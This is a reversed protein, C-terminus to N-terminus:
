ESAKRRSGPLPLPSRWAPRAFSELDVTSSAYQDEGPRSESLPPTDKAPAAGAGLLFALRSSIESGELDAHKQGASVPRPQALLVPRMARSTPSVPRVIPAPGRSGREDTISVFTQHSTPSERAQESSAPGPPGTACISSTPSGPPSGDIKSRDMGRRRSGFIPLNSHQDPRAPQDGRALKTKGAREHTIVSSGVGYFGGSIDVVSDGFLDVEMPRDTQPAPPTVILAHSDEGVAKLTARPPLASAVERSEAGPTEQEDPRGMGRAENTDLGKVDFRVAKAAKTDNSARNASSESNSPLQKLIVPASAPVSSGSNGSERPTLAEPESAARATTPTSSRTATEAGSLAGSLTSTFGDTPLTEATRSQATQAADEFLADSFVGGIYRRLVESKGGVAFMKAFASILERQEEAERRLSELQNQLSITLSKYHDLAGQVTESHPAIPKADSKADSKAGSKMGSKAEPLANLETYNGLLEEAELDSMQITIGSSALATVIEKRAAPDLAAGSGSNDTASKAEELREVLSRAFKEILFNPLVTLGAGCRPCTCTVCSVAEGTDDEMRAPEGLITLSVTPDYSVCRHRRGCRCTLYGGQPAGEGTPAPVAGDPESSAPGTGSGTNGSSPPPLDIERFDEIVNVVTSTRVSMCRTAFQLTSFSEDFNAVSPGVTALVLTRSNGSLSDTLLRTLPSDRFPVHKSQTVLATICNGLASLSKNIMKAEQLREGNSMTKSVRESGALDVMTLLGRVIKSDEARKREVTLLMVVHSRSSHKNMNTAAVARRNVAYILAAQVDEARYVRVSSLKSVFVSSNSERIQLPTAPAQSASTSSHFGQLSPLSHVSPLAQFPKYLSGARAPTQGQASLPVSALPRAGSIGLYTDYGALLDYVSDKYIQVYSLYVQFPETGSELIGFIETIARPLLGSSESVMSKGGRPLKGTLLPTSPPGFITFTKGSGTQGYSVISANVGNVVDRVLSRAAINYTDSQSCHAPLVADFRFERRDYSYRKLRIVPTYKTQIQQSEQTHNIHDDGSLEQLRPRDPRDSGVEIAAADERARVFWDPEQYSIGSPVQV